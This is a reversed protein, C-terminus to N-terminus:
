KGTIIQIFGTLPNTQEIVGDVRNEFVRCTYYYTGDNLKAGNLNTGDWQIAPDETRFVVEGWRNYIEMDISFIFRNVMPAFVDNSQDNNPTFANPLIYNPCNDVCIENGLASENGSSDIATLAYCGSINDDLIHSYSIEDLSIFDIFEYQTDENLRYYINIGILDNSQRCTINDFSYSVTNRLIENPAINAQECLTVVAVNPPCPAISDTPVACVIQSYNLLPDRVSRLGYSGTSEILYCYEEGNSLEDISFTSQTTSGIYLSAGDPPIEYVDYSYNNWPVL